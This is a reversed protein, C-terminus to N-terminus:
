HIVAPPQQSSTLTWCCRAATSTKPASIVLRTSETAASSTDILSATQASTCSFGSEPSHCDGDLERGWGESSRRATEDKSLTLPTGSMQRETTHRGPSPTRRSRTESKVLESRRFTATWPSQSSLAHRYLQRDHRAVALHRKQLIDALLSKNRISLCQDTGTLVKYMLSNSRRIM